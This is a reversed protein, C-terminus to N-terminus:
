LDRLRFAIGAYRHSDTNVGGRNGPFVMYRRTGNTIIDGEKQGYCPAYYWPLFFGSDQWDTLGAGAMFDGTLPGGNPMRSINRSRAFGRRHVTGHAEYHITLRPDPFADGQRDNHTASFSQDPRRIASILNDNNGDSAELRGRSLVVSGVQGISLGNPTGPPWTVGGKVRNRVLVLPSKGAGLDTREAGLSDNTPPLLLARDDFPSCWTALLNGEGETESSEDDYYVKGMVLANLQNETYWVVALMRGGAATDADNRDWFVWVKDILNSGNCNLHHDAPNARPALGDATKYKGGDGPDANVGGTDWMGSFVETWPARNAIDSAHRAFMGPQNDVRNYPGYGTNAYPLLVTHDQGLAGLMAKLSFYAETAMGSNTRIYLEDGGTQSGPIPSPDYENVVWGALLADNRLTGILDDASRILNTHERYDHVPDAM